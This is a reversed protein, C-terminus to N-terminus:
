GVGEYYQDRLEAACIAVRGAFDEVLEVSERTLAAIGEATYGPRTVGRLITILEEAMIQAARAERALHCIPAELDMLTSKYNKSEPIRIQVHANM